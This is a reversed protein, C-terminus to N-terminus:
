LMFILLGYLEEAILKTIAVIQDKVSSQNSLSSFCKDEILNM